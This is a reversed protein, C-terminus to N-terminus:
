DDGEATSLAEDLKWVTYDSGTFGSSFDAFIAGAEEAGIKEAIFEFFSQEPPAMDAFNEYPSVLVTVPKGGIRSLWIWENGADGWGHEKALQSLKEQAQGSAPGAGQKDSWTTVGFYPGETGDPWHSIDLDMREIYHHYHEVYQHVNENWNASLGKEADEAEYADQDAWTSCCSRYQIINVNHGIVVRYAQWTRSEGAEARFKIHAAAAASFQAEMGAKPVMIWVDALEGMAEDEQAFATLPVIFLASLILGVFTTTRKM